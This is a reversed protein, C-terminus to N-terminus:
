VKVTFHTSQLVANSGLPLGAHDATLPCKVKFLFYINKKVNSLTEYNGQGKSIILDANKFHDIFEESCDELITGPADSGNSIITNIQDIGASVADDMTADNLVPYGRVAVTLGPHHLKELLLRDFFIEGANDALYLIKEAQEVQRCFENIDGKVPESFVNEISKKVDSESLESRVGSDIINGAVALKVATHLPQPSSSIRDRLEELISRALENFKDKVTKYPDAIGSIKRIEKHIVQAMAPPSKTFDPKAIIQMINEILKKQFNEDDSIFRAAEISQRVLCPICDITTKM